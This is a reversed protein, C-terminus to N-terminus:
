CGKTTSFLTPGFLAQEVRQIKPSCVESDQTHLKSSLLFPDHLALRPLDRDRGMEHGAVGRHTLMDVSTEM